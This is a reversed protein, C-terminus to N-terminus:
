LIGRNGSISLLMKKEENSYVFFYKLVLDIGISPHVDTIDGALKCWSSPPATGRGNAM